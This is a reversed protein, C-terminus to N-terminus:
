ASSWGTSLRPSSSALRTKFTSRTSRQLRTRFRSICSPYWRWATSALIWQTFVFCNKNRQSCHQSSSLKWLFKEGLFSATFGSCTRSASKCILFLKRRALPLADKSAPKWTRSCICAQASSLPTLRSLLTRMANRSWILKSRASSRIQTLSWILSSRRAWADKLNSLELSLRHYSTQKLHRSRSAVTSVTCSMKSNKRM